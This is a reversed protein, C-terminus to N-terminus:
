GTKERGDIEAENRAAIAILGGLRAAHIDATGFLMDALLIRKVHTNLEYEETTGIGGHMQISSAALARMRTGCFRKLASVARQRAVVDTGDCASAAAYVLSSFHETDHWIDVMAHQLVQFSGIPKGFQERASLYDLTLDQMAEAAGLAVACMLFAAVDSLWGPLDREAQSWAVNVGDFAVDAAPQGDVLVQEAVTAAPDSLDVVACAAGDSGDRCLLLVQADLGGLVQRVTGSLVCGDPELESLNEPLAVAVRLDNQIVKSADFDPLDCRASLLGPLVVGGLLPTHGTSRGLEVMAPALTLLDLGAGGVAESFTMGTLGGEVLASWVDAESTDRLVGGVTDAIMRQEDSLEFDM